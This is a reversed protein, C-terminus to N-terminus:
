APKPSSKKMFISFLSTLFLGIVTKKLFDDLAVQYATASRVKEIAEQHEATGLESWDIDSSTSQLISLGEQQYQVLLEPDAWRLFLLIFLASVLALIIFCVAGVTMGQSYSLYGGLTYRKAEWLAFVVFLPILIFDFLRISSLPSENLQYLSLFLIIALVGGAIGYKLGVNALARTQNRSLWNLMM